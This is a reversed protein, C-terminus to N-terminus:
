LDEEQKLAAYIIINQDLMFRNNSVPLAGSLLKLMKYITFEVSVTIHFLAHVM